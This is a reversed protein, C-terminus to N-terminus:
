TGENLPKSVLLDLVDGMHMPRQIQRKLSTMLAENKRPRPQHDRMAFRAASSMM